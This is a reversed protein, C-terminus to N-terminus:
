RPDGEPPDRFDGSQFITEGALPHVFRMSFRFAGGGLDRHIVEAKGPTLWLPIPILLAGLRLIYRDTIFVLAHGEVRATLRMGLGGRAIELLAGREMLKRSTVLIPARGAFRYARDWVLARDPAQWVRVDVPVASGRWPALPMGILRCAQAILWGLASSRCDMVGPYIRPRHDTFRARVAAPLDFWAADGVLAQFDPTHDPPAAADWTLGTSTM